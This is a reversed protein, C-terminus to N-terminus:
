QLNMGSNHCPNRRARRRRRLDLLLGDAPRGLSGEVRPSHSRGQTSESPCRIAASSVPLSFRGGKRGVQHRVDQSPRLEDCLQDPTVPDTNLSQGKFQYEGTLRRRASFVAGFVGECHHRIVPRIYSRGPCKCPVHLRPIFPTVSIAPIDSLLGAPSYRIELGPTGAPARASKARSRTRRCLCTARRLDNVRLAASHCPSGM